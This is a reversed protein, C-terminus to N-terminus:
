GPGRRSASGAPRPSRRRGRPEQRTPHRWRWAAPRGGPTGPPAPHCAVAVTANEEARFHLAPEKAPWPVQTRPAGSITRGAAPASSGTAARTALSVASPLRVSRRAWVLRQQRARLQRGAQLRDGEEDQVLRQPGVGGLRQGVERGLAHRDLDDRTVVGAGDGRHGARTPTFPAADGTSARWRGSSASARAPATSSCATKPRTMGSCFRAMTRASWARPWTTAMVPSPTFSARARLSASTPTAMPEPAGAVRATASSTSRSSWNATMGYTTASPRRTMALMSRTAARNRVLFTRDSSRDSLTATAPQGYGNRGRWTVSTLVTAM